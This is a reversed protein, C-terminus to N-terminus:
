REEYGEHIGLAVGVTGSDVVSCVGVLMSVQAGVMLRSLVDRGLAETGLLHLRGQDASLPPLLRKMINQAAPDFPVIWRGILAVIIILAVVVLGLLALKSRSYRKLFSAM